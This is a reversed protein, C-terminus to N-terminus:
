ELPVLCQHAFREASSKYALIKRHRANIAATTEALDTRDMDDLAEGTPYVRRLEGNLNENTGREWAHYPM